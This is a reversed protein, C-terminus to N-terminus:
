RAGSCAHVPERSEINRAVHGNLAYEQRRGRGRILNTVAKKAILLQGPSRRKCSHYAPLTLGTARQGVAFTLGLLIFEQVVQTAQLHLLKINVSLVLRALVARAYSQLYQVQGCM